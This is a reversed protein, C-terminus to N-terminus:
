PLRKKSEASSGNGFRICFSDVFEIVVVNDVDLVAVPPTATSKKPPVSLVVAAVVAADAALQLCHSLAAANTPPPTELAAAFFASVALTLSMLQRPDSGDSASQPNYALLCASSLSLRQRAQKTNNNGGNDPKKKSAFSVPPRSSYLAPWESRQSQFSTHADRSLMACGRGRGHVALSSAAAPGLSSPLFGVALLRCGADM